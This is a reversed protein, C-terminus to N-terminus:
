SLAWEFATAYNFGRGPVITQDIYRYRQVAEAIVNDQKLVSSMLNAVKGLESWYRKNGSLAASLMAVSMLQFPPSKTFRSYRRRLWRYRFVM